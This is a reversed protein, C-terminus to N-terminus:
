GASELCRFRSCPVRQPAGDRIRGNARARMRLHESAPRGALHASDASGHSPRGRDVFIKRADKQPIACPPKGEQPPLRRKQPTPDVRNGEKRAGASTGGPNARISIHNPRFHGLVRFAETAEPETADRDTNSSRDLLRITDAKLEVVLQKITHEATNKGTGVKIKRDYDHTSVEGQVFVLAGKVLRETM